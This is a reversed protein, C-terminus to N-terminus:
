KNIVVISLPYVEGRRYREVAKMVYSSRIKKAQELQKLDDYSKWATSRIAKHDFDHPEGTVRLLYVPMDYSFIEGPGEQYFLFGAVKVPYGTEQEGRREIASISDESPAKASGAPFSWIDYVNQYTGNIKMKPEEVCLFDGQQNVVLGAARRFNYGWRKIYAQMLKTQLIGAATEDIKALADQQAQYHVDYFHQGDLATDYVGLELECQLSALYDESVLQGSWVDIDVSVIPQGNLLRRMRWMGQSDGCISPMFCAYGGLKQASHNVRWVTDGITVNYDLAVETRNQRRQLYRFVESEFNPIAREVTGPIIHLRCDPLRNFFQLDQVGAVINGVLFLDDEPQLKHRCEDLFREEFDDPRYYFRSGPVNEAGILLGSTFYKAM